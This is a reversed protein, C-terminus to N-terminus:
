VMKIIEGTVADIVIEVERKESEAKIEIEYFYEGDTEEKFTYVLIEGMIVDLELKRRFFGISFTHYTRKLFM